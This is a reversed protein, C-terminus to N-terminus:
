KSVELNMAIINKIRELDDAVAKDTRLCKFRPHLISNDKTLDTGIITMVKGILEDKNKFIYDLEKDNFGSVSGKVLGDESEFLISGILNERKGKGNLYGAIKVDIDFELKLKIQKTSTGDKFFSDLDKLISGEEGEQMWEKTRKLAEDYSHVIISEVIKVKVPSEINKINHGLDQLRVKYPVEYSGKFFDDYPIYDWLYIDVDNPVDLSNLLGNSKYRDEASRVILEGIYVGDKFNSFVEEIEKHEYYEGSRSYISVENGKKIISRYTGDMKKQLVAPYSINKLKDTLSCRMYPMVPIKNDVLKNFSTINFGIKLDRNLVRILVEYDLENLNSSLNNLYEIAKNGTIEREQLPELKDLCDSLSLTNKFEKPKTLVKPTIFFKYNITDYAYRFVKDFLKERNLVEKVFETKQKTSSINKLNELVSLLPTFEKEKLREFVAKVEPKELEKLLKENITDFTPKM